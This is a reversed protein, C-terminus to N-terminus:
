ERAFSDSGFKGVCMCCGNLYSMERLGANLAGCWECDDVSDYLTLCSVCLYSSGGLLPMVTARDTPECEPCHAVESDSAPGYQTLLWEVSTEFHENECEAAGMHMPDITILEGCIDCPVRLFRQRDGCVACAREYLPDARTEFRAAAFNCLRCSVYSTGAAIEAKITPLLSDYKANLFGHTKRLKEHMAAISARYFRFQKAWRGTLLRHLYFWAKCQETVVTEIARHDPPSTNYPKHFFHVLRNRHQRIVTFCQEEEPSIREGAVHQLRQLAEEMTVSQFDGAEFATRNARDPRAVVLTWHELLLRAKLFLELASVFHILSYKPQKPLAAVSKRLFDLANRVLSDFLPPPPRRRRNRSASNDM